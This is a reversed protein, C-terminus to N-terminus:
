PLRVRLDAGRLAAAAGRGVVAADLRISGGGHVSLPHHRPRDVHVAGRRADDRQRLHGSAHEAAVRPLQDEGHLEHDRGGAHRRGLPRPRHGGAAARRPGPVPRGDLAILRVDHMMEHRLAVQDRSQLIQFNANYAPPLMPPGVNGWAICREALTRVQVNDAPGIGKRAQLRAAERQRAAATIPPLKGDPPDYIISTRMNPQKDYPEAQWLADDYHIDQRSQALLRDVRSKLFAQAEDPTYFEKGKAEDPRELPVYSDNTWFGQFDPHGDVTRPPNWKVGQGDIAVPLAMCAAALLALFSGRCVRM